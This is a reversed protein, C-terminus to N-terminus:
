LNRDIYPSFGESKYVLVCGRLYSERERGKSEWVEEELLNDARVCIQERM